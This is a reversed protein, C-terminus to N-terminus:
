GISGSNASKDDHEYLYQLLWTASECTREWSFVFKYYDMHWGICFVEVNGWVETIEEGEEEEMMFSSDQSQDEIDM